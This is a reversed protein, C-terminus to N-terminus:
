ALRLANSPPPRSAFRRAFGPAEAPAAPETWRLRVASAPRLAARDAAIRAASAAVLGFALAAPFVLVTPAAAVAPLAGAHLLLLVLTFAVGNRGQWLSGGRRRIAAMAALTAASGLWRLLVGPEAITADAIRRALLAVHLLVLAGGALRLAWRTLTSTPTGTRRSM